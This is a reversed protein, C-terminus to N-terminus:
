RSKQQYEVLKEENNVTKITKSDKTAGRSAKQIILSGFNEDLFKNM